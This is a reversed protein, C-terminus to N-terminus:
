ILERRQTYRRILWFGIVLSFLVLLLPMGSNVHGIESAILQTLPGVFMIMGLGWFRGLQYRKRLALWAILGIAFTSLVAWGTPHHPPFGIGALVAQNYDIPTPPLASLSKCQSCYESALYSTLGGLLISGFGGGLLAGGIAGGTDWLQVEGATYPHRKKSNWFEDSAVLVSLCDTLQPSLNGRGSWQSAMQSYSQSKEVSTTLLDGVFDHIMLREEPTANGINSLHDAFGAPDLITFRDLDIIGKTQMDTFVQLGQELQQRVEAEPLNLQKAFVKSARDIALGIDVNAHQDIGYSEYM